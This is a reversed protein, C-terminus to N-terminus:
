TLGRAEGEVSQSKGQMRGMGIGEAYEVIKTSIATKKEQNFPVLFKGTEVALLCGMLLTDAGDQRKFLNAFGEYQVAEAARCSVFIADFQGRLKNKEIWEKLSGTM